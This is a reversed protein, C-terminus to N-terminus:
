RLNRSMEQPEQSNLAPPSLLLNSSIWEERWPSNEPLMSGRMGTDPTLSSWPLEANLPIFRLAGPPGPCMHTDGSKGAQRGEVRLM